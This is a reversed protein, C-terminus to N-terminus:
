RVSWRLTKVAHESQIRILYIGAPLNQTVIDFSTTGSAVTQQASIHQIMRGDIGLLDISVVDSAELVGQITAMGNLSPNPHVEWEGSLAPRSIATAWAEHVMPMEMMGRGTTAMRLKRNSASISLDSVMIPDGLDGTLYAWTNGSDTSMWAGLDGGVYVHSPQLPDIVISTFPVDPLGTGVALWSAGGDTTKYVHDTGFGGLVAYLTQDDEPHVALDMAMRDPLEENIDTWSVGGDLSVRIKARPQVLINGVEGQTLPSTSVYLKNMDQFSVAISIVKRGSDLDGNSVELVQGGMDDSRYMKSGGFYMREPNGPAMVFPAIFNATLRSQVPIGIDTFSLGRNTSVSTQLWSSGSFITTGTRPDIGTYGGQGGIARRWTSSGEYIGLGNNQLGALFFTSDGPDSSVGAYFQATQLGGNCNMYTLGGDESCYIGGDTVFYMLQPNAPDVVIQHINEHVFDSPGDPTGPANASLFGKQFDTKQVFVGQTVQYEWVNKGACIVRDPNAPDVTLDHAFWGYTFAQNGIPFWTNGFDGSRLLESNTDLADGVSAYVINPFNPDVALQIKGNFDTPLNVETWIGGGDTSFYIGRDPHALNGAAALMWGASDPHIVVDTIMKKNLMKFWNTGQDPSLYVGETTAAYVKNLDMPDFVIENVGRLDGYGWDLAQTWTAGGDNSMLIGTGYTGRTKWVINGTGAAQYNYVEGSGVFVINSDLPHYTICSVAQLPFGTTVPTWADAGKGATTSKWLGGGASGALITNSNAPNVALSLMRGAINVPGMSEWAIDARTSVQTNRQLEAYASEIAGAQISQNPYARAGNWWDQAVARIDNSLDVDPTATEQGQCIGVMM